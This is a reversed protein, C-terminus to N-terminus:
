SVHYYDSLVTTRNIRNVTRKQILSRERVRTDSEHNFSQRISDWSWDDRRVFLVTTGRREEDDMIADCSIFWDILRIFWDILKGKNDWGTELISVASCLSSLVMGYMWNKCTKFIVSQSKSSQNMIAWAPTMYLCPNNNHGRPEHERSQSSCFQGVIGIMTLYIIPANSKKVTNYM